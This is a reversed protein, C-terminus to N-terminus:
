APAAPRSASEVRSGCRAAFRVAHRHRRRAASAVRRGAVRRCRLLRRRRRGRVRRDRVVPKDRARGRHSRLTRRRHRRFIRLQEAGVSGGCRSRGSFRAPRAVSRARARAARAVRAGRRGSDRLHLHGRPAGRGARERRRTARVRAAGSRGRDHVGSGAGRRGPAPARLEANLALRRLEGPVNAEEALHTITTETRPVNFLPSDCGVPHISWWGGQKRASRSTRRNTARIAPASRQLQAAALSLHRRESHQLPRRADGCQASRAHARVCRVARRCTRCDGRRARGAHGAARAARPEHAAHDRAAHLVRRRARALRHHRARAARARGRHGQPPPLRDHERRIRARQRRGVRRRPDAARRAPRRHLARGM